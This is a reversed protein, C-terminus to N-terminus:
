AQDLNFFLPDSMVDENTDDDIMSNQSSISNSDANPNKFSDFLHAWRPIFTIKSGFLFKLLKPDEIFDDQISAPADGLPHVVVPKRILHTAVSIVRAFKNIIYFNDVLDRLKKDIDFSQSFMHVQCGYHGQYRFWEVVKPDMSKFNRNSWILSVEDICIVSGFPFSYDYIHRPDFYISQFTKKQDKKKDYITFTIPDTSYVPVGKILNEYQLRTHYTSKGSRKKGMYFNLTGWAIYKKTTFHWILIGLVLVVLIYFLVM